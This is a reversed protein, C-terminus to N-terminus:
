PSGFVASEQSAPLIFLQSHCEAFSMVDEFLPCHKLRCSRLFATRSNQFYSMERERDRSREEETERGRKREESKIKKNLQFTLLNVLQICHTRVISIVRNILFYDLPQLGGAIHPCVAPLICPLGLCYIHDTRQTFLPADLCTHQVPNASGSVHLYTTCLTNM